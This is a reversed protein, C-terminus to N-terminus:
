IGLNRMMELARNGTNGLIGKIEALNKLHSDLLKIMDSERTDKSSTKQNAKLRELTTLALDSAKKIAQSSIGALDTNRRLQNLKQEATDTQSKINGEFNNKPISQSRLNISRAQLDDDPPPPPAPAVAPQGPTQNIGYGPKQTNIGSEPPPPSPPSNQGGIGLNSMNHPIFNYIWPKPVTSQQSITRTALNPEGSSANGYDPRILSQSAKKATDAFNQSASSLSLRITKSDANQLAKNVAENIKPFTSSLNATARFTTIKM